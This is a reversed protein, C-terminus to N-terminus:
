GPTEDLIVFALMTTGLALALMAGLPVSTMLLGSVIWIDRVLKQKRRYHRTYRRWSPHRALEAESLGQPPTARYVFAHVRGRDDNIDSSKGLLYRIVDNHCVRWDKTKEM